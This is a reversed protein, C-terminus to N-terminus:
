VEVGLAKCVNEVIEDDLTNDTRKALNHLILCVIKYLITQDDIFKRILSDFLRSLLGEM